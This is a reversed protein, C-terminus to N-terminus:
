IIGTQKRWQRELAEQASAELVVDMDEDEDLFEESATRSHVAAALEGVSGRDLVEQVKIPLGAKMAYACLLIAKISDGGAELFNDSTGVEELNLVTAMIECLVKEERTRPAVFDRLGFRPIPLAARDIKGSPTTPFDKVAAIMSPIMQSPLQKKLYGRLETILSTDNTSLEPRPVVYATLRTDGPRDQRAVVVAREVLRHRALVAEVEGLEVRFGRVKV